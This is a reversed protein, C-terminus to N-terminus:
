VGLASEWGQHQLDPESVVPGFGLEEFEYYITRAWLHPDKISSATVHGVFPDSSDPSPRPM